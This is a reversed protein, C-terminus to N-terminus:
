SDFSPGCGLKFKAGYGFTESDRRRKKTFPLPDDCLGFRHRLVRRIEQIRKEVGGWKRSNSASMLVGGAQAMARLTEWALVPKGNQKSAFGMEAYNHTETQSAVTIQVREDSLFTIEVEGWNRAEYVPKALGQAAPAPPVAISPQRARASANGTQETRASRILWSCCHESAKFVQRIEYNEGQIVVGPYTECTTGQPRDLYGVGFRRMYEQDPDNQLLYGVVVDLWHKWANDGGVRALAWAGHNALERFHLSGPGAPIPSENIYVWASQEPNNEHAERFDRWLAHLEDGAIVGCSLFQQMRELRARHYNETTRAFERGAAEHQGETAQWAAVGIEKIGTDVLDDVVDHLRENQRDIGTDQDDGSRLPPVPNLHAIPEESRRLRLFAVQDGDTGALANTGNTAV